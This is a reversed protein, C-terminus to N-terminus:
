KINTDNRGANDSRAQPPLEYTTVVPPPPHPLHPLPHPPHPPHPPPHPLPHPTDPPGPFLIPAGLSAQTSALSGPSLLQVSEGVIRRPPRSPDPASSAGRLAKELQAKLLLMKVSDEARSQDPSPTAAAPGIEGSLLMERVIEEVRSQLDEAPAARRTRLPVSFLPEALSRETFVVEPGPHPAQHPYAPPPLTPVVPVAVPVPVPVYEECLHQVRVHCQEEWVAEEVIELDVSCKTVTRPECRQSPKGTFTVDCEKDTKVECKNVIETRYKTLTIPRCETESVEECEERTNTEFGTVECQELGLQRQRALEESYEGGAEEEGGFAQKSKRLITRLEQQLEEALGLETLQAGTAPAPAPTARAAALLWLTLLTLM